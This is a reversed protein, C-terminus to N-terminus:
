PPMIHPKAKRGEGKVVAGLLPHRCFPPSMSHPFRISVTAPLAPLMALEKSSVLFPPPDRQIHPHSPDAEASSVRQSGRKGRRCPFSLHPPAFRARSRASLTISAAFPARPIKVDYLTDHGKVTQSGLPLPLSWLIFLFEFVYTHLSRM